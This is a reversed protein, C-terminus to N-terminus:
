SRIFAIVGITALIAAFFAASGSGVATPMTAGALRALIGTILGFNIGLQLAMVALLVKISTVPSM